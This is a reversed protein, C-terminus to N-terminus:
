KIRNGAIYVSDISRTNRINTVPNASLILFDAWKGKEITGLDKVGLFEAASKTAATIVQLPSLGADVMLQAEWHEAYGPFRGPTGSDTGFGYRVGADAERKLNLKATEFFKPYKSFDPDSTVKKQYEASNLTALIEPSIARTFFPDKLFPPPSGYIFMSTERELTAAVQWTGHQKMLNILEDDVPKDRVSHALGDVGAKTLQKADELYFVHAVVKLDHKHAAQIIASSIAIPIKADQGLHDDVWIKVLDPHHAALADVDAAAHAPTAEEYITDEMGPVVAPYGAKGTFGKGATFIRTYVPRGNHQEDRIQYVLPAQDTGLSAVSTVGYRAYLRLNAEVGERTFYKKPNQTFGSTISVHGHLNIMGPMVFKGSLDTVPAGAPAKMQAVPGVWDIRGAANVIMAAHPLPNGGLGDILTFEKYVRVQGSASLCCVLTVLLAAIGVSGQDVFKTFAMVFSLRPVAYVRGPRANGIGSMRYAHSPAAEQLTPEILPGPEPNNAM